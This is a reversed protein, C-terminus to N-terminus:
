AGTTQSTSIGYLDARSGNAWNGFTFVQLQNIAANDFWASSTHNVWGAAPDSSTNNSYGSLIQVTKGKNTNAYDLFDFIVAGFANSTHAANTICLPARIVNDSPLNASSASQGNGSLRHYAFTTPNAGNLTIVVDYPTTQSEVSRGLLRLQLHTYNSPLDSFTFTGTSGSSTASAIWVMSM